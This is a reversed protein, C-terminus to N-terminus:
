KKMKDYSETWTLYYRKDRLRVGLTKNGDTDRILIPSGLPVNHYYYYIDEDVIKVLNVENGLEIIEM